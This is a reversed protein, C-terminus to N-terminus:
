ILSLFVLILLWREFGYGSKIFAFGDVLRIALVKNNPIVAKVCPIGQRVLHRVEKPRLYTNCGHGM